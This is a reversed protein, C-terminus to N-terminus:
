FRINLTKLTVTSRGGEGGNGGTGPSGPAGDVFMTLDLAKERAYYTVINYTSDFMTDDLTVDGDDLNADVAKYGGTPTFGEFRIISRPPGINWTAEDSAVEVKTTLIIPIGQDTAGDISEIVVGAYARVKKEGVQSASTVFVRSNSNPQKVGDVTWYYQITYRTDTITANVTFETNINVATRIDKPQETITISPIVTLDSDNSQISM